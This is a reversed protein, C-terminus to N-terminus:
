DISIVPRGIHANDVVGILQPIFEVEVAHEDGLDTVPELRARANEDVDIDLRPEFSMPETAPEHRESTERRPPSCSARLSIGALTTRRHNM